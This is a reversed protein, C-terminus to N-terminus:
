FTLPVVTGSHAAQGLAALVVDARYGTAADMVPDQHGSSINHLVHREFETFACIAPYEPESWGEGRFYTRLRCPRAAPQNWVPTELVLRGQSGDITFVEDWGDNGLGIGGRAHWTCDLHVAHGDAYRLLGQHVLEVDAHPRRLEAASVAAPQGILHLIMDVLHSGGCILVGGGSMCRVSSPQGDVSSFFGLAENELVDCPVPQHTRFYAGTLRGLRPILAKARQVAPFFRKMYCTHLQVGRAAAQRLLEGSELPTLGLTKECVVHKGAALATLAVPYHVPTPTCIVVTNIAPDTVAVQWSPEFRAGLRACWPQASSAHLDSIVAVTTGMAAFAELHFKAISGTGIVALVPTAGSLQSM